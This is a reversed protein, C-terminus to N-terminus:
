HGNSYIFHIQLCGWLLLQALYQRITFSQKHNYAKFKVGQHQSKKVAM